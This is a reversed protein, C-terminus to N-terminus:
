EENAELKKIRRTTVKHAGPPLDFVRLGNVMRTPCEAAFGRRLIVSVAKGLPLARSEAYNKVLQFIDDDVSLTTRVDM